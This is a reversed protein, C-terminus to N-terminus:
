PATASPLTALPCPDLAICRAARLASLVRWVSVSLFITAPPHNTHAASPPPLSDHKSSRSKSHWSAHHFSAECRSASRRICAPINPAALPAVLSMRTESRLVEVALGFGSLRSCRAHVDDRSIRLADTRRYFGAILLTFENPDSMDPRNRIPRYIEEIVQLMQIDGDDLYAVERVFSSLDEGSPVDVDTAVGNALVAALRQVRVENSTRWAEEIALVLADQFEPSDIRENLVKQDIQESLRILEENMAKLLACTREGRAPAGFLRQRIVNAAKIIPSAMGGLEIGLEGLVNEPAGPYQDLVADIPRDIKGM